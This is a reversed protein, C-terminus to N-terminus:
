AEEEAETIRIVESEVESAPQRHQNSTAPQLNGIENNINVGDGKVDIFILAAHSKHISYEM